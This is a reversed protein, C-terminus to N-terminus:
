SIFSGLGSLYGGGPLQQEDAVSVNFNALGDTQGPIPRYDEVDTNSYGLGLLLSEDDAQGLGAVSAPANLMKRAVAAVAWGFLGAGVGAGLGKNVYRGVLVGGAVGLVAAIGAQTYVGQKKLFAVKAFLAEGVMVAAGAGVGLLAIDKADEVVAGLGFLGEIEMSEM